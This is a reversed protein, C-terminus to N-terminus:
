RCEMYNINIDWEWTSIRRKPISTNSMEICGYVPPFYEQADPYFDIFHPTSNQMYRMYTVINNKEDNSINAFNVSKPLPCFRKNGSRQGGPSTFYSDNLNLGETITQQFNPLQFYEGISIGGVYLYSDLTTMEIQVSFVSEVTDFYHFNCDDIVTITETTILVDFVNYFRITMTDINHYDFAVHDIDHTTNLEATIISNNGTAYFALELFNHIINTVQRNLNENTASLTADKLLNNYSVRM